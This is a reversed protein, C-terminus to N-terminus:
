NVMRMSLLEYDNLGSYTYEPIISKIAHRIENPDCNYLSVTKGDNCRRNQLYGLFTVIRERILADGDSQLVFIKKNTTDLLNEKGYQLEEFLKEGPRLGTFKLKINKEPELGYLRILNKAIDLIKYQKGMDLVFIEGGNSISAANIVLLSAEPISMFFRTIEPHTITVPGGKEIQEKFLPIVSGRSGIVNGFRVIATNLGLEHYYNLTVLEAIRKSAGMINVPNVAKDTSVLVFQKIKYNLSLDLVNKTGIVNNQLAEIENYEMLPVHKHAAAHFVVDPLYDDFIKNLMAYDKVDAIKYVVQPPNDLFGIQENISKVLTYISHEGRGVAILKKIKFRLIQRCIESGISGGAGTVLITKGAFSSEIIKFDVSYEKRGILDVIGIDRLSPVLPTNSIIEILPPLTKLQVKPHVKKISSVIQNIAASKESTLAIIIENINFKSIISNIDSTTGLVAKGNLYKGTKSKDEDAFGIIVRGMRRKYYEGLITRGAEGAGVILIRKELIFKKWQNTESESFTDKEPFASSRKKSIFDRWLVRYLASLICIFLFTIIIIIRSYELRMLSIMAIYLFFGAVSAAALNYFDRINSYDWIIRYNQFFYLPVIYAFWLTALQEISLLSVDRGLEPYFRLIYSAIYSGIIILTDLLVYVFKRGKLQYFILRAQSENQSKGFISQITKFLIYLDLRFMRKEIYYKYYRIKEPLIENLYTQEPDTNERLTENEKLYKISALDTIGPKVKLIEKYEEKFHNVFREIEPRPGVVSMEGKLVNFLQPFEDLNYKRLIKGIPTLRPDNNYSVMPGTQDANNVMTRFKYINFPVNNFGIKKEKYIVPGKSTLKIILAIIGMVPFTIIIGTLSITIDLIKKKITYAM